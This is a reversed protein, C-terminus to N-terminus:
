IQSSCVQGKTFILQSEEAPTLPLSSIKKIPMEIFRNTSKQTFLGKSYDELIVFNVDDLKKEFSTMALALNEESFFPEADEYDVRCIQQRSTLIREKSITTVDNRVVLHDLNVGENNMLNQLTAGRKIM